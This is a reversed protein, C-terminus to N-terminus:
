TEVEFDCAVFTVPHQMVVTASVELSGQAWELSLAAIRGKRIHEALEAIYDAAADRARDDLTTM